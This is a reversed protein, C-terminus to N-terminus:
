AAVKGNVEITFGDIFIYHKFRQILPRVSKESSPVKFASRFRIQFEKLQAPNLKGVMAQAEAKEDDLLFDEFDRAAAVPGPTGEPVVAGGTAATLSEAAVQVAPTLAVQAPSPEAKLEPESQEGPSLICPDCIKDPEAAQASTAVEILFPPHGLLGALLATISEGEACIEAGATHRLRVEYFGPRSPRCYWSIGHGAARRAEEHIRGCPEESQFEALAASLAADADFAREAMEVSM